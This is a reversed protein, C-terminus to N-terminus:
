SKFEPTLLDREHYMTNIVDLMTANYHDIFGDLLNLNSLFNANANNSSISTSFEYKDVFGKAKRLISIGRGGDFNEIADKTVISYADCDKNWADWLFYGSQYCNPHRDLRSYNYYEMEMFHKFWAPDTTLECRSSDNYLRVHRFGSMPLQRFLDATIQKIDQATRLTIHNATLNYKAM